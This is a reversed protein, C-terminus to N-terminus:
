FAPKFNLEEEWPNLALAADTTITVPSTLGVSGSSVTFYGLGDGDAPCTLWLQAKFVGCSDTCWEDTATGIGVYEAPVMNGDVTTAVKNRIGDDTTSFTNGGTQINMSVGAVPIGTPVDDDDGTAVPPTRTVKGNEYGIDMADTRVVRFQYTIPANFDGAAGCNWDLAPNGVTEIKYNGTGGLITASSCDLTCVGPFEDESAGCAGLVLLSVLLLLKKVMTKEL